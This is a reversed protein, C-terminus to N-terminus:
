PVAPYNTTKVYTSTIKAASYGNTWTALWPFDVNSSSSAIVGLSINTYQWQTGTWNIGEDNYFYAARGNVPAIPEMKRWSQGGVFGSNPDGATNYFPGDMLVWATADPELANNPDDSGIIIVTNISYKNKLYNIVLNRENEGHEVNYCLFEYLKDVGSDTTSPFGRSGLTSTFSTNNGINVAVTEEGDESASVRRLFGNGIGDLSGCLIVRENQNSLLSASGDSPRSTNSFQRITPFGNDIELVSRWRNNATARNIITQYVSNLNTLVAYYTLPPNAPTTGTINLRTSTTARFNLYRPQGTPALLTPQAGIQSQEAYPKGPVKNLWRTVKQNSTAVTDVTTATRTLTGNSWTAQWPYDTNGVGYYSQSNWSDGSDGTEAQGYVEWRNNVNDWFVETEYRGNGDLLGNPYFPKGNKSGSRTYTGNIVTTNYEVVNPFGALEITATEDTLNNGVVNLAGYDADFWLEFGPLDTPSFPVASSIVPFIEIKRIRRFSSPVSPPIEIQLDIGVDKLKDIRTISM